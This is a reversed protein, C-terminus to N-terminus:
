GRQEGRLVTFRTAAPSRLKREWCRGPRFSRQRTSASGVVTRPRGAASTTARENTARSSVSSWRSPSSAAPRAGPAAARRRQPSRARPRLGAVPRPSARARRPSRPRSARPAAARARRGRRSRAGRRSASRSARGARPRRRARVASRRPRWGRAACAARAVSSRARSRAAGAAARALLELLREARGRLLGLPQRAEGLVQQQDRAGIGALQGISARAPRPPRPARADNGLAERRTAASCRGAARPRLRRVPEQEVGVRCASSCASPLRTSLASACPPPRTTSEARLRAVLRTSSCTSSSPGPKGGSNMPEAKSRKVREGLSACAPAAAPQPERDDFQDGLGVVSRDAGRLRAAAARVDPDGDPAPALRLRRKLRRSM